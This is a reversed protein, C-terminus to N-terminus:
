HSGQAGGIHRLRVKNQQYQHISCRIFSQRLCIKKPKEKISRNSLQIYQSLPLSLNAHELGQTVFILAPHRSKNM